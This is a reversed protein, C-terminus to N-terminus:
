PLFYRRLIQRRELRNANNETISGTFRSLASRSRIYDSLSNGLLRDLDPLGKAVSPRREPSGMVILDVDLDDALQRIRRGPKGAPAECKYKLGLRKAEKVAPM